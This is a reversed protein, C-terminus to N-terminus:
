ITEKYIYFTTNNDMQRNKHAIHWLFVHMGALFLEKMGELFQTEEIERWAVLAILIFLWAYRFQTGKNHVEKCVTLFQNVLIDGLEDASRIHV